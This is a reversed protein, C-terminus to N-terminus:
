RNRGAIVIAAGHCDSVEYVVQTLVDHLIIALLKEDQIVVHVYLEGRGEKLGLVLPSILFLRERGGGRVGRSGVESTEVKFCESNAGRM